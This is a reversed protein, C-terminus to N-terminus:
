QTITHEIKNITVKDGNFTNKEQPFFGEPPVVM